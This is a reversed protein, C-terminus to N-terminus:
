KLLLAPSILLRNCLMYGKPKRQMYESSTERTGQEAFLPEAAAAEGAATAPISGGLNGGPIPFPPFTENQQFISQSPLYVLLASRILDSVCLTTVRTCSALRPALAKRHGRVDRSHRLSPPAVLPIAAVQSPRPQLPLDVFCRGLHSRAAIYPRCAADCGVPSALRVPHASSAALAVLSCPWGHPM